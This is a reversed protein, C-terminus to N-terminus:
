FYRERHFARVRNGVRALSNVLEGSQQVMKVDCEFCRGPKAVQYILRVGAVFAAKKRGNSVGNTRGKRHRAM